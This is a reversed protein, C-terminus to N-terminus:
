EGPNGLDFALPAEPRMLADFIQGNIRELYPGLGPGFLTM